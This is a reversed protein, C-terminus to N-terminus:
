DVNLLKNAIYEMNIGRSGKVLIIDDNEILNKIGEYAEINNEFYLAKNIPLGGEIAGDIYFKANKGGVAIVLEVGIRAANKGAEKHWAPGWHGMELMEGLAAIRKGTVQQKALIELAASMSDPSANYSDNIVTVGFPSVKIDLRMKAPKVEMLGQKIEEATLNYLQAIVIAPLANYVNHRGPLPITFEEVKGYLETKFKVGGDVTDEIDMALVDGNNVGYKIIKYSKNQVTNLFGNDGNIILYDKDTLFSSIEMKAKFINEQSKLREIHSLGINTIVAIHPKVISSLAEIEGLSNMGLEVVGMQHDSTMKFLSLPLGIRNNFNGETKITNFRKSMISYILEKTTTKGTSGTVGIFPVPNKDKYYRALDGLADLTDKVEIAFSGNKCDYDKPKATVIGAAGKRLTEEIFDHGDFKEGIIPIFLSGPSLTRSDTTVDVCIMEKNGWLLKGGTAKLIEEAKLKM